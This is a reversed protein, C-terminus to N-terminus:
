WVQIEVIDGVALGVLLNMTVISMVAAFAVFLLLTYTPYPTGGASAQIDGGRSVVGSFMSSFEVEGLVMVM